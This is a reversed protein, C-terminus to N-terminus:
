EQADTPQKSDDSGSNRRTFRFLTSFWVTILLTIAIEVYFLRESSSAVPYFGQPYIAMAAVVFFTLEVILMVPNSLLTRPNLRVISDVLVRGSFMSLFGHNSVDTVDKSSNRNSTIQESM